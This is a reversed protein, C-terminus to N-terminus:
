YIFEGTLPDRQPYYWYRVYDFEPTGLFQKHVENDMESKARSLADVAKHLQVVAQHNRPYKWSLWVSWSQLDAHLRALDKGLEIHDEKTPRTKKAM